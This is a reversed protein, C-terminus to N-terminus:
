NAEEDSTIENVNKLPMKQSTIKNKIESGKKTIPKNNTEKLPVKKNSIRSISTHQDLDSTKTIQGVSIVAKKAKHEVNKDISKKSKKNLKKKTAQSKKSTDIQLKKKNVIVSKTSSVNCTSDSRKRKKFPVVNADVDQLETKATTDTLKNESKIANIESDSTNGNKLNDISTKDCVTKESGERKRKKNVNDSVLNKDFKILRLAAKRSDMEKRQRNPKRVRKIGLPMKGQSLETFEDFLRLLQRRSKATSSQHFKYTSLLEAIKAANFPIPPLEIDVKGARPDLPKEIENEPEAESFQKDENDTNEEIDSIDVKQMGDIHACPFGADRWANFKEMYDLGIDSQFILYRFIHRMIHKMQREDSTTVLYEAFPKVLEHVVDEQLNGNGVKALEELYIETVHLNFGLGTKVHLFLQTFIKSFETVWEMNWSHNKCVVFTQRLIRRVLMSFKDLRYQDIGFWEAALTQLACSTYLIITDKSKLCHVLKSLSEALEEQILMKDSMWMCYFLGKWLSMFDTKTFVFSSQSRVTLWKNLRKLVKDRVKKDNNALLRAIKIEQQLNAVILAKTSKDNSEMPKKNSIKPIKMENKRSSVRADYRRYKRVAM